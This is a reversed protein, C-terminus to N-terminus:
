YKIKIVKKVLNIQQENMFRIFYVGADLNRIDIQQYQNTIDGSLLMQGQIDYLEYIAQNYKETCYIYIDDNTPNPFIRFSEENLIENISLKIDCGQEEYIPKAYYFFTNDHYCRLETIVSHDDGEYKPFMDGDMGIYEIVTREIYYHNDNIGHIYQHRVDIGAFPKVVVSDVTILLSDYRLDSNCLYCPFYMYYSEGTTKSFDFYTRFASDVYYYLIDTSDNYYFINATHLVKAIIEDIVTDKTCEMHHVGFKDPYNGPYFASYTWKAGVPFWEQAKVQNAFICFILVLCVRPVTFKGKGVLANKEKTEMCCDKM